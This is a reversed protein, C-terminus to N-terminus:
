CVNFDNVLVKTSIMGITLTNADPLYCIDSDRLPMVFAFNRSLRELNAILLQVGQQQYIRIAKALKPPDSKQRIRDRDIQRCDQNGGPLLPQRYGTSLEPRLRITGISNNLLLLRLEHITPISTGRSTQYIYLM